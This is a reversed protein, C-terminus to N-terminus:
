PVVRFVTCTDAYGSLALVFNGAIKFVSALPEPYNSCTQGGDSTSQCVPAPVSVSCNGDAQWVSGDTLMVISNAKLGGFTSSLAVNLKEESPPEATVTLANGQSDAISRLTWTGDTSLLVSANLYTDSGVTLVPVMLVNTAADFHAPGYDYASVHSKSALMGNLFMAYVSANTGIWTAQIRPRGQPDSDSTTAPSCGLIATVAGVTMGSRIQNYNVSSLRGDQCATDSQAISQSSIGGAAAVLALISFMRKLKMMM